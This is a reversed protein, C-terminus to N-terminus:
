TKYPYDNVYNYTTSVSVDIIDSVKRYSRIKPYLEKAKEQREKRTM